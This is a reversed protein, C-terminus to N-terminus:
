SKGAPKADLEAPASLFRRDTLTKLFAIVARKDAASLHLGGDPHKALNPDLTDTRKVGESYHDLVEELTSFRGDHMYPATVAVNRLSPTAFAGRDVATKTVIFRGLDDEAIALGNNRFQHDTFLPGGHCHFCDAGLSGMRPEREMMFLEFGRQEEASLKEEGRQARDFKSDHSTLTLVFNEMALGIKEATIEPSGFARQFGDRYDASRQLKAIVNELSEDMERHDTIPVLAQARLSAVRGDWFFERKWALNLLPMANRHGARGAVGLSFRRPDSLAAASQHCSACAISGDRSLATEAFLRRGLDVREEILPNDPPLDPLPFYAPMQFRYPTFKAPMHLPPKKKAPAAAPAAAAPPGVPAFARTLNKRLSAAVPDGDRSHTTAGDRAFSIKDVGDIVAAVDFVVPVATEERLEVPLELLVETRFPDRALHYAYGEAQENGRRFLGELAMFIYGGQWSWHLGNVNPHLPHDPPRQAPDSANAAPDLGVFFRLARYSGDPIGSFRATTRRDSASIWAISDPAELWSGDARQLAFGSLLYSLRTVSWAEGSANQHRLSNLILPASGIRHEVDLRLNAAQNHGGLLGAFWAVAVFISKPRHLRSRMRM